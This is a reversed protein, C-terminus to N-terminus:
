YMWAECVGGPQDHHPERGRAGNGFQLGLIPMLPRIRRLSRPVEQSPGAMLNNGTLSLVMDLQAPPDLITAVLTTAADVPVAGLAELLTRQIVAHCVEM